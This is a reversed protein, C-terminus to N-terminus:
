LKIEGFDEAIDLGCKFEMKTLHNQAEDLLIKASLNEADEENESTTVSSIPRYRPSVHFLCLRQANIEAAFAAAMKPTSHGYQIAKERLSEEMTAEHLIITCDMDLHTMPSNDCTDGLIVIKRGKKIPGTVDLPEIVDGNDLAVRKGNKLLAYKPGPSLGLEKLKKVDLSGLQDREQIIFGFCPIRHTLAGAVVIYKGDNFLPWSKTIPDYLIKTTSTERPNIYERELATVNYERDTPFQWSEPILEHVHYDYPLPSGSIEFTTALLNRLGLPGYIHVSKKETNGGNGLTCLLGPLGFVHDGHLHTIFIRNVKGPRIRSKQIQIQTGEGCDFLWVHGEELQLATCSVGRSPTPFCSATGLFVINM